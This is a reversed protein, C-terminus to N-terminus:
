CRGTMRKENKFNLFWYDSVLMLTCYHDDKSYQGSELM